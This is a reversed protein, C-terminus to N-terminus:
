MVLLSPSAFDAHFYVATNAVNKKPSSIGMRNDAGNNKMTPQLELIDLEIPRINLDELMKQCHFVIDHLGSETELTLLVM